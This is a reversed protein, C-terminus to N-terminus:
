GGSGSQTAAPLPPVTKDAAGEEPRVAGEDQLAAEPAPEPSEPLELPWAEVLMGFLPHDLYHLERSRMRRNGTLRFLRPTADEEALLQEILATDPSDSITTAVTDSDSPNPTGGDGDLPRYYLLDAQVHLYRARHVRLTGDVAAKSPDRAVQIRSSLTPGDGPEGLTPELEEDGTSVAGLAANNSRVHILRAQESPVGPQVWSVHLLPRFASSKDLSAWLDALRYEEPPVLRFALPMDTPLPTAPDPAEPTFIESGTQLEDAGQGPATGEESLEVAGAIAPLGPDAPWVESDRGMESTREFVIVEVAYWTVEEKTQARAEPATTLLVSAAALLSLFFRRSYEM